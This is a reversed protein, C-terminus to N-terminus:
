NEGGIPLISVTGNDSTVKIWGEVEGGLSEIADFSLPSLPFSTAGDALYSIGDPFHDLQAQYADLTLTWVYYLKHSDVCKLLYCDHLAKATYFQNEGIPEFTLETAWSYFRAAPYGSDEIVWKDEAMAQHRFPNHSFSLVDDSPHVGQTSSELYLEIDSLELGYKYEAAEPPTCSIFSFALIFM